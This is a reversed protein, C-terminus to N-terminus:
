ASTGAVRAFADRAEQCARDFDEEAECEEAADVAEDFRTQLVLAAVNLRFCLLVDNLQAALVATVANRDREGLNLLEHALQQFGNQLVAMAGPANTADEDSVSSIAAETTKLTVYLEDVADSVM